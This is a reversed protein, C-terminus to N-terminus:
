NRNLGQVRSGLKVKWRSELQYIDDTTASSGVTELITADYDAAAHALERLAVNGGHGDAYGRWRSLFGGVGPASGVYQAGSTRHVLLYVGRASRLVGLWSEPLADVEGLSCSFAGIGPFVPVEAHRRLEVIEKDRRDAYQVWAREGGGWDVVLRGSYNDLALLRELEIISSHPGPPSPPQYPDPSQAGRLVGNVKWLGIFVTRGAPDPLFSALIAASAMQSIVRPNGQGAQYQEFRAHRHIADLYMARQYRQRHRHRVLRVTSADIGDSQLLTRFTLM